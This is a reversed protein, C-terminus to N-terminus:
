AHAGDMRGQPRPPDTKWWKPTKTVCFVKLLPFAIVSDLDRRITTDFDDALRLLPEKPIALVVHDAAVQQGREGLEVEVQTGNGTSRLGKVSQNKRLTVNPSDRLDIVMKDVVTEVGDPITSLKNDELQFLRLWFIAWEVANPNDPILHYFTGFHLIKLVAMPSLRTHLANWFGYEYLPRQTGPMKTDQRLRDFGGNQDSLSALWKKGPDSLEVVARRRGEVMKERIMTEQNFMRYVGLRLLELASPDTGRRSREDEMLPYRVPPEPSQPAAFEASEVAFEELLQKFLPQIELEFRMPGFEAKHPKSPGAPSPSLDITEIRGGFRNTAELVEVTFADEHNALERACFLGAIGGGVM